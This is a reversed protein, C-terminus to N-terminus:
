GHDDGDIQHMQCNRSNTEHCVCEVLQLYCKNCLMPTVPETPVEWSRHCDPCGYVLLDPMLKGTTSICDPAM